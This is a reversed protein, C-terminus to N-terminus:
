AENHRRRKRTPEQQQATSDNGGQRKKTVLIDGIAKVASEELMIASDSETVTVDRNEIEMTFPKRVRDLLASFEEFTYARESNV